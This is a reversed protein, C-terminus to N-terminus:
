QAAPLNESRQLTQVNVYQYVGRNDTALKILFSDGPPVADTGFEITHITTGTRDARRRIDDLQSGSLRPIRADTLFFIVDPGMRLAMKLASEHETGGYARVSRVYNKALDVLDSEGTIMQVIMPDIQFATPKDNYFVIQFQQRDSLSALSRLLERKAAKLPRQSYGNMSESRDMVYVFRSGFGSVGFLSATKKELDQQNGMAPGTGLADGDLPSDGALGSGATAAPTDTVQKLIGELDIPPQFDIPPEAAASSAASDAQASEESAVESADIYRDRDPLRHVMAIGIPRDPQSETGRPRDSWLLGMTTLLLVHLCLSALMAPAPSRRSRFDTVAFGTGELSPSPM